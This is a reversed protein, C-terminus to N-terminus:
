LGVMPKVILTLDKKDRKIVVKVERGPKIFGAATFLDLVSDTWRDDVTLLRDGPKLGARDAASGPLVEKVTVGPDDDDKDKTVVFGWQAAPSLIRTTPKKGPGGMLGEVEAMMAQLVDPPEYGSPVFTLKREKYDMTLRYRAFFPFGIIGELPGVLLALEKVTPHDMVVLPVDRAQLGGLDLTKATVPGGTSGFLSLSPKPKGQVLGAERAVKSTLVSMPAGTDFLVRYPGKGNVKINVAMHRTRLLEFSVVVPPDDKPRPPAQAAAPAAWLLLILLLALRRM